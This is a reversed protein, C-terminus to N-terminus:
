QTNPVITQYLYVWNRFSGLRQRKEEVATLFEKPSIHRKTLQEQVVWKLNDIYHQQAPSLKYQWQNLQSIHIISEIVEQVDTLKSLADHHLKKSNDSKHKNLQTYFDWERIDWKEILAEIIERKANIIRIHSLIWNEAFVNPINDRVISGYLPFEKKLVWDTWM